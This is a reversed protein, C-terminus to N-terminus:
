ADEVISRNALTMAGDVGLPMTYSDVIHQEHTLDPLMLEVRDGIRIAPNPVMQVSRQRALGISKSLISQAANQAQAVTYIFPSSYFRPINGFPGNYRTPSAPNTDYAVARVPPGDTPEGIAVVANYVGERDLTSVEHVMVGNRGVQILWDAPGSLSPVARITFVVGSGTAGRDHFWEVGISNALQDLAEGRDREWVGTNGSVTSTFSGQVNVVTSAGLVEQILTTMTTTILQGAPPQRPSEFRADTVNAALDSARLRIENGFGREVVDVRGSFVEYPLEEGSPLIINRWVTIRTGYPEIPAVAAEDAVGEPAVTLECTRRIRGNISASVSGGIVPLERPNEGTYFLTARTIVRHPLSTIVGPDFTPSATVTQVTLPASWLTIAPEPPPDTGATSLADYTEVRAHLESYHPLVTTIDSYHAVVTARVDYQYTTGAALGTDTYVRVRPPLLFTEETRTPGTRRLEYVVGGPVAEWGTTVFDFGRDLVSLIPPGPPSPATM